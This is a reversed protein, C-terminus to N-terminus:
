RAERASRAIALALSAATQTDEGSLTAAEEESIVATRLAEGVAKALQSRAEHLALRDQKAEPGDPDLDILERLSGISGIMNKADHGFAARTELEISYWAPGSVAGGSKGADQSL